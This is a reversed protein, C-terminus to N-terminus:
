NVGKMTLQDTDDNEMNACKQMITLVDSEWAVSVRGLHVKCGPTLCIGILQVGGERNFYIDTVHLRKSCVSCCPKHSIWM